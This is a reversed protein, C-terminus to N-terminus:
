CPVVVTNAMGRGFMSSVRRTQLTRRHVVEITTSGFVNSFFALFFRLVSCRGGATVQDSRGDQPSRRFRWRAPHFAVVVSGRCRLPGRCSRFCVRSPASTLVTVFLSPCVRRLQRRTEATVHLVNALTTAHKTCKLSLKVIDALVYRAARERM